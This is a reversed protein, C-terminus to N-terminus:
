LQDKWLPLDSGRVTLLPEQWKGPSKSLKVMPALRHVAGYGSNFRITEPEIMRNAEGPVFDTSSFTGLSAYWMAARALNVHVHYSGGAAARRRLAAIIGAGGLYGAIYDNM